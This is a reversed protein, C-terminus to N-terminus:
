FGARCPYGWRLRVGSQHTHTHSPSTTHPSLSPYLGGVVHEVSSSSRLVAPEATPAASPRPVTLKDKANQKGRVKQETESHDDYSVTADSSGVDLHISGAAPTGHSSASPAPRPAAKQPPSEWDSSTEGGRGGASQSSSAGDMALQRITQAVAPAIVRKPM